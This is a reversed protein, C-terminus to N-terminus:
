ALHTVGWLKRCRTEYDYYARLCAVVDAWREEGVVTKALDRVVEAEKEGLIGEPAGVLFADHLLRLRTHKELQRVKDLETLRRPIAVIEQVHPAEVYDLQTVLDVVRGMEEDTVTGDAWAVAGLVRVCLEGDEPNM